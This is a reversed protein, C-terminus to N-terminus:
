ENIQEMGNMSYNNNTLQCMAISEKCKSESQVDSENSEKSPCPKMMRPDPKPVTQTSQTYMEPLWWPKVDHQPAGNIVVPIKNGVLDTQQMTSKVPKPQVRRKKLPIDRSENRQTMRKGLSNRKGVCEKRKRVTTTNKTQPNDLLITKRTKKIESNKMSKLMDIFFPGHYLLEQLQPLSFALSRWMTKVHSKTPERKDQVFKCKQIKIRPEGYTNITTICLDGGMIFSKNLSDM